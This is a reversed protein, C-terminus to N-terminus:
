TDFILDVANEILAGYLNSETQQDYLAMTTDRDFVALALNHARTKENESATFAWSAEDRWQQWMNAMATNSIGLANQANIQNQANTAATNATNINRRWQANSQDIQARMNSNFIKREQELKGNFMRVTNEQETNFRETMNFQEVNFKDIQHVLNAFFENFQQASAANFQRAANTAAQDSLMTQTRTQQNAIAMQQENNLNQQQIALYANADNQAIPLAAQMLAATVAQGAMSSAGLGRSAMASEAVTVAGKAWDPTEGAPFNMLEEYQFKMTGRKDLEQTAATGQPVNNGIQSADYSGPGQEKFPDIKSEDTAKVGAQDAQVTTGSIQYNNADLVEGPQEKIDTSRFTGAEPLSPNNIMQANFDVISTPKNGPAGDVFDPSWDNVRGESQGFQQWHDKGSSFEGREVAAKVDPNADLYRQENWLQAM